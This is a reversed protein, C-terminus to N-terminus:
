TKIGINSLVEELVVIDECSNINVALEIKRLKLVEEDQQKNNSRLINLGSPVVDDLVISPKLGYEQFIDEPVAVCMAPKPSNNYAAIVEDIIDANILPLDSTTTLITEDDDSYCKQIVYQLDEVYGNGPTEVVKFGWNGVVKATEPTNASTAIIIDKINKSGKLAKLVHLILPKKFVEKLPKESDGEMRTGKGGAMVIAKVMYDCWKRIEETIEKQTGTYM